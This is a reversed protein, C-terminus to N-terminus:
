NLRIILYLGGSQYTLALLGTLGLIFGLILLVVIFMFISLIAIGLAALWGTNFFSKILWLWIIMTLMFSITRGLLTVTFIFFLSVIVVGVLTLLLSRTFKAKEGVIVRGAFYVALSVIVWSM